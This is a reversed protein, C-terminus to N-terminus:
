AETRRAGDKVTLYPGLVLADMETGLFDAVAHEPRHVIPEGRVNFSTNLVAPVGTHGEFAEILRHFRPNFSRTVSQLRGTGDVHTVAPILSRKDPRVRQVLLMFPNPHYDEFYDPGREHLISPAFPRFGERRKVRANVVDKM